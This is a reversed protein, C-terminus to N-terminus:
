HLTRRNQAIFHQKECSFIEFTRNPYRLVIVGLAIECKRWSWVNLLLFSNIVNEKNKPSFFHVHCSFRLCSVYIKSDMCYIYKYPYSFSLVSFKLPVHFLKVKSKFIRFIIQINKLVYIKSLELSSYFLFILM